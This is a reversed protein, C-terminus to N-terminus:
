GSPCDPRDAPAQRPGPGPGRRGVANSRSHPRRTGTERQGQAPRSGPVAALRTHFVELEHPGLVKAAFREGRRQLTAEIRRVDRRIIRDDVVHGPRTLIVDSLATDDVVTNGVFLVKQVRQKEVVRIVVTVGGPSEEPTVQVDDFYGMAM